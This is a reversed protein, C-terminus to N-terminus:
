SSTKCVIEWPQSQVVIRGIEAEQTALIVPTLWWCRVQKPKQFRTVLSSLSL